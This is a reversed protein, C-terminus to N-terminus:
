RVLLDAVQAKEVIVMLSTETDCVGNVSISVIEARRNVVM